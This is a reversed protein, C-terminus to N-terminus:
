INDETAVEREAVRQGGPASPDHTVAREHTAVTHKRGFVLIELLLWVLGAIMAILGVMSADVGPTDVQLAFYAIAGVILLFIPGGIRVTRNM